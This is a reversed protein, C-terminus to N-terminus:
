DAGPARVATFLWPFGDKTLRNRDLQVRTPRRVEPPTAVPRGAIPPHGTTGQALRGQAAALEPPAPGVTLEGPFVGADGPGTSLNQAHPRGVRPTQSGDRISAAQGRPEAPRAGAGLLLLVAGLGAWRSQDTM